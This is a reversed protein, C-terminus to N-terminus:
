INFEFAAYRRFIVTDDKPFNKVQNGERILTYIVKMFGEKQVNLHIKYAMANGLGLGQYEPLICITKLILTNENETSTGCYGIIQQDKYLLYLKNLHLELKDSSYLQLFEKETLETYGWSNKSFVIKSIEGVSHLEDYSVNKVEKISFGAKDLKELETQIIGMVKDFKERSASYYSVESSPHMQNLLKYYYVESVPESKFYESGDTEKICRYQHWISGNVPGKLISVNRQKAEDKLNQWIENFLLLSDQEVEFFGFFAESDPLRKDSILAIHAVLQDNEFASFPIFTIHPNNVCFNYAKHFDSFYFDFNKMNGYKEKIMAILQPIPTKSPKYKTIKM